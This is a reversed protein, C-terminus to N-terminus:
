PVDVGTNRAATLNGEGDKVVVRVIYQGSPVKFSHEVRIGSKDLVSLSPDRLRMEIVREVGSIYNGNRDFLGTVVTLTENKRDSAKRFTLTKADLRAVVNIESEGNAPRFFDAHLDLPIDSIEDRSFFTEKLEERAAESPNVARNPVWYGRRAEVDYGAEKLKVKLGHYSGDYKLNDPSFGLVYVFEPRAALQKLGDEFDNDARVSGGTGNALEALFNGGEFQEDHDARDRAQGIAVATAPKGGYESDFPQSRLPTYVGRIDLSNIVVKDRIANDLIQNEFYRHDQTLIFGPSVLVITRSGPQSSM